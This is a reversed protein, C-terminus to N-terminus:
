DAQSEVCVGLLKFETMWNLLFIRWFITYHATGKETLTGAPAFKVLSDVPLLATPWLLPDYNGRMCCKVLHMHREKALCLLHAGGKLVLIRKCVCVHRHLTWIVYNINQPVQHRYLREPSGAPMRKPWINYTQDRIKLATIHTHLTFAGFSSQFMIITTHTWRDAICCGRRSSSRLIHSLSGGQTGKCELPRFALCFHAARRWRRRQL